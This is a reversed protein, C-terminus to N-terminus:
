TSDKLSGATTSAILPMRPKSWYVMRSTGMWSMVVTIVTTGVLFGPVLIGIAFPGLGGM